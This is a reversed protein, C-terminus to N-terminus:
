FKPGEAEWAADCQKNVGLEDVTSSRVDVKKEAALIEEASCEVWSEGVLQEFKMNATPIRELCGYWEKPSAGCNKARGELLRRVKQKMKARNRLILYPHVDPCDDAQTDIVVRFVGSTSRMQELTLLSAEGSRNVSLKRATPEFYPNSSLWAIKREGLKVVKPTVEIFGDRYISSIKHGMTYHYLLRPIKM